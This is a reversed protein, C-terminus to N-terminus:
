RKYVSERDIKTFVISGKAHINGDVRVEADFAFITGGARTKKVAIELRDGPIVPKVFKFGDVKLLVYLKDEEKGSEIVWVDGDKELSRKDEDELASIEFDTVEDPILSRDIMQFPPRQRIRENIENINMM